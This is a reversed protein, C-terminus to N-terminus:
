VGFLNIFVKYDMNECTLQGPAGLELAVSEGRHVPAGVCSSTPCGDTMLVSGDLGYIEDGFWQLAGM